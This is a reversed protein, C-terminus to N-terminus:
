SLTNKFTRGDKMIVSINEGQGDLVSLDALPDGDVLLLDATAGEAVVGLLGPRNLIEANVITASALVDRPSQVEGQLLLGRSQEDHMEGLLDTGFGIKVGADLCVEIARLGSGKVAQLKDISVQPLGLEAGRRDIADYTVLTPVLYAGRAAMLRATDADILNGHEITRVGCEVAHRTAHPTYSHAAVYTNWAQAEEVIARLEEASYQRNDIPDNPSVVGGSVMVKIQDAGKRLEDRAAKRVEPVGDAIRTSHTLANACACPEIGQTRRRFDGHGGTQSLARGSVFLRPGVLLRREVAEATGWDAGACDRVTTFGRMLMGAMIKSAIATMLTLPQGELHQLNVESMTVHCHNDILGPMLIRGGGDIVQAEAATIPGDSVERILDGEILVEEGEVPEPRTADWVRVDRFLTTTM